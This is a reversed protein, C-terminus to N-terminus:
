GRGQVKWQDRDAGEMERQVWGTGRVARGGDLNPPGGVESGVVSGPQQLQHLSSVRNSRTIDGWFRIWQGDQYGAVALAAFSM